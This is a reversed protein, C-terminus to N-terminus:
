FKGEYKAGNKWQYIGHGHKMNKFYQGEYTDGNVSQWFGEGEM